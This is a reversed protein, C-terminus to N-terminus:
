HVPGQAKGNFRAGKLSDPIDRVQILGSKARRGESAADCIADHIKKAIQQYNQGVECLFIKTQQGSSSAVLMVVYDTESVQMVEVGLQPTEIELAM